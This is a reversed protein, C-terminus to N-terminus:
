IRTRDNRSCVGYVCIECGSKEPRRTEAKVEAKVDTEAQKVVRDLEALFVRIRFFRGHEPISISVRVLTVTRVARHIHHKIESPFLEVNSVVLIFNSFIIWFDVSM